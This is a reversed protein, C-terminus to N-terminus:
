SPGGCGQEKLEDIVSLNSALYGNFTTNIGLPFVPACDGGKGTAPKAMSLAGTRLDSKTVSSGTPNPFVSLAASSSFVRLATGAVSARVSYSAVCKVNYAQMQPAIGEFSFPLEYASANLSVPGTALTVGKLSITVNLWGAHLLSGGALHIPKAGTIKAYVVPSDILMSAPSAVDEALYPRIAPVCRFALLTVPVRPCPLAAAQLYSRSLPCTVKTAGPHSTM